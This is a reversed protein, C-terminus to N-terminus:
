TVSPTSFNLFSFRPSLYNTGLRNYMLHTWKWLARYYCERFLSKERNTKESESYYFYIGWRFRLDPNKTEAMITISIILFFHFIIRIWFSAAVGRQGSQSALFLGREEFRHNCPEWKWIAEVWLEGFYVTVSILRLIIYTYWFM